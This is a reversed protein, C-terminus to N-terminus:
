HKEANHFKLIINLSRLFLSFKMKSVYYLLFLEQQSCSQFNSADSAQSSDAQEPQARNFSLM